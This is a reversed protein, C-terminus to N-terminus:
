GLMEGTLHERITCNEAEYTPRRYGPSQQVYVGTEFVNRQARTGVVGSGKQPACPSPAIDHRKVEGKGRM